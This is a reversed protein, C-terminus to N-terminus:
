VQCLVQCLFSFHRININSVTTTNNYVVVTEKVTKHQNSDHDSWSTCAPVFINTRSPWVEFLRHGLRRIDDCFLKFGALRRMARHVWAQARLCFTKSSNKRLQQISPGLGARAPM